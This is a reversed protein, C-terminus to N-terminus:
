SHLWAVRVLSAGGTNKVQGAVLWSPLTQLHARWEVASWSHLLLGNLWQGHLKVGDAGTKGAIAQLGVVAVAVPHPINTATDKQGAMYQLHKYSHGEPWGHISYAQLQAQGAMHQIHKYNHGEPWGHTSCTQLQAGRDLRTSSINTATGM